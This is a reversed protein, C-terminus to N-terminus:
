KSVENELVKFEIEVIESWNDKKDRIECLAKYNGIPLNKWNVLATQHEENSVQETLIWTICSWGQGDKFTTIHVDSADLNADYLKINWVINYTEFGVENLPFNAIMDSLYFDLIIPSDKSVQQEQATNQYSNEGSGGCSVLLLMFLAIILRKM